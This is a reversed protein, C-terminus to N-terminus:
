ARDAVRSVWVCSPAINLKEFIFTALLLVLFTCSVFIYSKMFNVFDYNINRGVESINYIFYLFIDQFVGGAIISLFISCTVYIYISVKRKKSKTWMAGCIGCVARGHDVVAGCCSCQGNHGAPESRWEPRAFIEEWPSLSRGFGGDQLDTRGSSFPRDLKDVLAVREAIVRQRDRNAQWFKGFWFKM